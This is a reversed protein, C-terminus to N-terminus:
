AVHCPKSEWKNIATGDAFSHKVERTPITLPTEMSRYDGYMAKYRLCGIMPIMNVKIKAM